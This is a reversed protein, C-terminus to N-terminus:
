ISMDTSKEVIQYLCFINDITPWNARNQDHSKFRRYDKFIREKIIGDYLSGLTSM